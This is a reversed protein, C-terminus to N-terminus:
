ARLRARSMPKDYEIWIQTLARQAAESTPPKHNARGPMHRLLLAEHCPDQWILQIEHRAAIQGAREARERQHATQDSDLLIAKLQFKIRRQERAAIRKIARQVRTLPDGAGPALTEVVLHVPVEHLRLLDNLVQGYAAESEGECGLFVPKKQRRIPRRRTM